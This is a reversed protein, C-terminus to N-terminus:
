IGAPIDFITHNNSLLFLAMYHWDVRKFRKIVFM